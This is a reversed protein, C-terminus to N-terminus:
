CTMATQSTLANDWPQLTSLTNAAIQQPWIEVSNAHHAIANNMGLCDAGGTPGVTQLYVGVTSPSAQWLTNFEAYVQSSGTTTGAADDLGHNGMVCTPGGNSVSQACAIMLDQAVSFDDVPFGNSAITTFMNFPFDIPTNKWGSYDSLIGNLCNEQEASNWGYSERIQIANQTLDIVFPEGTVSACSTVAVARVLPNSDYRAALAHEFASWAQRYDNTWWLGYSDTGITMPGGDLVKAWEPATNGGFIRLKVGLPDTPHSNNWVTVAALSNDLDTWVEQGNTPELQSWTEVVVLGGFAPAVSDLTSPDTTPASVGASYFSESEMDVLGTLPAKPGPTPSSTTSSSTTSGPADGF